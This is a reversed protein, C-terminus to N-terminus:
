RCKDRLLEELEPLSNVFKENRFSDSSNTRNFFQELQHFNVEGSLMKLPKSLLNEINKINEKDLGFASLDKEVFRTYKRRIVEKVEEPLIAINFYEPNQLQHFKVKKHIDGWTFIDNKVLDILMEPLYLINYIMVTNTVWIEVNKLNDRLSKINKFVDLLHSPFRIYDNVKGPGDISVGIKVKKYSKWLEIARSPIVTLNSNYDLVINKAQGSKIFNELVKYHERILLPEGGVLHLYQIKELDIDFNNFLEANEYWRLNKDDGVVVGKSNEKLLIKSRNGVSFTHWRTKFWEDYWGTSEGPYCSRCSLNCKNGLRLDAHVIPFDDAEISGDEKTKEIVYDISQNKLYNEKDLLRRSLSGVSEEKICRECTPHEQGKLMYSRIEKVLKANRVDKARVTSANLPVGKDDCFIGRTERFTNAQVCLRYDGNNTLSITNWPIPCFTDKPKKKSM